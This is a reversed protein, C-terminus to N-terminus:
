CILPRTGPGRVSSGASSHKCCNGTRSVEGPCPSMHLSPRPRVKLETMSSSQGMSWGQTSVGQPAPWPWCPPSIPPSSSSCGCRRLVRGARTPTFAASSSLSTLGCWPCFPLLFTPGVDGVDAEWTRGTGRPAPARQHAMERGEKKQGWASPPCLPLAPLQPRPSPCM